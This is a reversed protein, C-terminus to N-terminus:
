IVALHICCIGHLPEDHSVIYCVYRAQATRKESFKGKEMLERYLEGGTAFELILYVRRRDFFFGYRTNPFEYRM